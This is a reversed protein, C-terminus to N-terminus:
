FAGDHVCTCVDWCLLEKKKKGTLLSTQTQKIAKSQNLDLLEWSSFQM